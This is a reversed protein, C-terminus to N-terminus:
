RKASTEDAMVPLQVRPVGRVDAYLAPLVVPTRGGRRLNRNITTKPAPLNVGLCPLLLALTRDVNGHAPAPRRNMRRAVRIM